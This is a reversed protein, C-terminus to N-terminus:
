ACSQGSRLTELNARMVSLYDEGASDDSLGELPDLVATGVGAEDAVTQATEPSVLTESYVTSVGRERVLDVLEALDTPTPEGDPTLGTLGVQEFDYREALYGFAAHSTVLTRVECSALAARAEADLAELDERLAQAGATFEAAREPELEGLRQAVADGVDALRTPDLWFHPDTAGHEDAHEDTHEEEAHEDAHEEEAHEDAHEGEHAHEDETAALDLRAAGEVDLAREAAQTEVAEDVSPQFGHLYLVLDAEGLEGVDRPTLELDHPEAGPATLNRVEVADGGVREAVYQLPYFSAVVEPREEPAASGSTGGSTGASPSDDSGCAALATAAALALAATRASRLAYM